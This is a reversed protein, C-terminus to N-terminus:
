KEPDKKEKKAAPVPKSVFVMRKGDPSFAGASNSRGPDQGPLREPPDNTDPDVAYLQTPSAPGGNAYSLLIRRGDPRYAFNWTINGEFRTVLGHKAGRADVIDMEVKGGAREGRFVIKRGDPSWKFNWTFSQYRAAAAADFLPERTGEVLDYIVLNAPGAAGAYTTYVIRQGDPSWRAGWGQNDLLLSAEPEAISTVWVGHNAGYRSYAIRSARPSFSPLCGDGLVRPNTGDANVVIIKADSLTEGLQPRWADFAIWKGDQSWAPSGQAKYETVDVLPKIGSADPNALYIRAVYDDKDAPADATSLRPATFLLAALLTATLAPIRFM